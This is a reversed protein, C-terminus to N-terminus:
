YHKSSIDNELIQFALPLALIVMMHSSLLLHKLNMSAPTEQPSVQTVELNRWEPMMQILARVEGLSSCWLTMIRHM